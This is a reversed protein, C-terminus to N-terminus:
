ETPKATPDTLMCPAQVRDISSLLAETLPCLLTIHIPEMFSFKVRSTLYLTARVKHVTVCVHCLNLSSAIATGANADTKAGILIVFM